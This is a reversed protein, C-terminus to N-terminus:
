ACGRSGYGRRRQIEYGAFAHRDDESDFGYSASGVLVESDEPHILYLRGWELHLSTTAELLADGLEQVKQAAGAARIANALGQLFDLEELVVMGGIIRNRWDKIPAALAVVLSATELVGRSIDPWGLGKSISERWLGCM